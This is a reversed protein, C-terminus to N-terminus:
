GQKPVGRAPPIICSYVWNYISNYGIWLAFTGFPLGWGAIQRMKFMQAEMTLKWFTPLYM